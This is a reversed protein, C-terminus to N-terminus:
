PHEEGEPDIWAGDNEIHIYGNEDLAHMVEFISDRQEDPLSRVFENIEQTPKLQTFHVGGYKSHLSREFQEGM